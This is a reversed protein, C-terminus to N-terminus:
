FKKKFFIALYKYRNLQPVIEEGCKSCTEVKEIESISEYTYNDFKKCHQCYLKYVKKLIEERSLVALLELVQNESLKFIDMLNESYVYEDIKLDQIYQLCDTLIVDALNLEDKIINYINSYEKSLM